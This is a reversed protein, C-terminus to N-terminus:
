SLSEGKPQCLNSSTEHIQNMAMMSRYQHQQKGCDPWMQHIPYPGPVIASATFSWQQQNVPYPYRGYFQQMPNTNTMGHPASPVSMAMMNNHQMRWYDYRMQQNHQSKEVQNEHLAGDHYVRKNKQENSTANEQERVKGKPKQVQDQNGGKNSGNDEVKDHQIAQEKCRLIVESKKDSTDKRAKWDAAMMTFYKKRAQGAKLTAVKLNEERKAEKAKRAAAAKIFAVKLDEERKAEKAKRAAAARFGSARKLDHVSPVAEYLEVGKRERTSRRHPEDPCSAPAPALTNREVRSPQVQASEHDQKPADAAHTNGTTIIDTERQAQAALYDERTQGNQLM